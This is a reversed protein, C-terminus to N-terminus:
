VFTQKVDVDLLPVPAVFVEDAPPPAVPIYRNMVDLVELVKVGASSVLVDKPFAGSKRRRFPKRKLDVEDYVERKISLPLYNLVEYIDTLFVSEGGTLYPRAKFVSKLSPSYFSSQGLDIIRPHYKSQVRYVRDLMRLEVTRPTSLEEVIINEDHLDGHVLMRSTQLTYITYLLEVVLGVREKDSMKPLVDRLLKGPSRDQQLIFWRGPKQIIVPTSCSASCKELDVASPQECLYMFRSGVVSDFVGEDILLNVEGGAFFESLENVYTRLKGSFKKEADKVGSIKYVPGDPTEQVVVGFNGTGVACTIKRTFESCYREGSQKIYDVFARLGDPYGLSTLREYTESDLSPAMNVVKVGKPKCVVFSFTTRLPQLLARRSRSSKAGDSWWDEEDLQQSLPVDVGDVRLNGSRYSGGSGRYHHVQDKQEEGRRGDHKQTVTNSKSLVFITKPSLLNFVSSRCVHCRCILDSDLIGEIRDVRLLWTVGRAAPDVLDVLSERRGRGVVWRVPLGGSDTWRTHLVEVGSHRVVVRVLLDRPRHPGHVFMVVALKVLGTNSPSLPDRIMVLSVRQGVPINTLNTVVSIVHKWVHIESCPGLM